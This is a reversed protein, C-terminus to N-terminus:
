ISRALVRNHADVLPSTMRGVRHVLELGRGSGRDLPRRASSDTTTVAPCVSDPGTGPGSHFLHAPFGPRRSRYVMALSRNGGIPPQLDRHGRQKECPEAGQTAGGDPHWRLEGLSSTFTSPPPIKFSTSTASKPEIARNPKHGPEIDLDAREHEKMIEIALETDVSRAWAAPAM